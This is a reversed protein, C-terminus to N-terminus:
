VDGGLRRISRKLNIKIRGSVLVGAKGDSKSADSFEGRVFFM